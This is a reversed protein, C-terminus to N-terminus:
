RSPSRGARAPAAGPKAGTRTSTRAEGARHESRRLIATRASGSRTLTRNMVAKTPGRESLQVEGHRQHRGEPRIPSPGPAVAPSRAGNGQSEPPREPIVGDRLETQPRTGTKAHPPRTPRTAGIRQARPATAPGRSRGTARAGRLTIPEADGTTQCRRAGPAMGPPAGTGPRRDPGTPAGRPVQVGAAAVRRTPGRARSTRGNGSPGDNGTSTGAGSRIRRAPGAPIARAVGAPDARTPVGEPGRAPHKRGAAIAGIAAMTGLGPPRGRSARVELDRAPTASRVLDVLRETAEVRADRRAVGRGAPSRGSRADREPLMMGEGFLPAVVRAEGERQHGRAGPEPM